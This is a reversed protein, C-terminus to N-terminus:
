AEYQAVRKREEAWGEEVTRRAADTLRGRVARVVAALAPRMRSLAEDDGLLGRYADQRVRRAVAEGFSVESM